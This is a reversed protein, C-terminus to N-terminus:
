FEKQALVHDLKPQIIIRCYSSNPNKNFFDKHYEEAEYFDELPKVETVIREQFDGQVESIIKEVVGRQNENSYLIISRYETGFDNGQRNMTTPNHALFFIRLIKKLSIKSTNFEIKVVEAHGTNGTCVQIYSPNEITGGAYGPTVNVVGKIRQFIAELCWFCGGGLVINEINVM